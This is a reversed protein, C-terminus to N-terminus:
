VAQKLEKDRQVCRPLRLLQGAVFRRVDEDSAHVELM